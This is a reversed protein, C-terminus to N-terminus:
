PLGGLHTWCLALCAFVGHWSPTEWSSRAWYDSPSKLLNCIWIRHTKPPALNETARVLVRSIGRNTTCPGGTFLQPRSYVVAWQTKMQFFRYCLWSAPQTFVFKVFPFCQFLLLQHDLLFLPQPLPCKLKWKEGNLTHELCLPCQVFNLDTLKTRHMWVPVQSSPLAEQVTSSMFPRYCTLPLSPIFVCIWLERYLMEKPFFVSMPCPSLSKQHQQVLEVNQETARANNYNMFGQM